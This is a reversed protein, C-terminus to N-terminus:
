SEESINSYDIEKVRGSYNRSIRKFGLENDEENMFFAIDNTSDLRNADNKNISTINLKNEM